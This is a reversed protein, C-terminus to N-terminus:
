IEDDPFWAWTGLVFGAMFATLVAALTGWGFATGFLCAATVWFVVRLFNPVTVAEVGLLAGAGRV